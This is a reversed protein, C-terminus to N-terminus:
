GGLGLECALRTYDTKGSGLVPIVEVERCDVFRSTVRLRDGVMRILQAAPVETAGAERVVVVRGGDELVAVTRDPALMGELEDLNVRQGALKAIRSKRGTVTFFGEDDVRGLDGTALVGRNVDGLALDARETAYGLMVNPGEYIMEGDTALSLRGGPVPIGISGPKDLVRAPPLCAIRATAETQGYMVVLRRGCQHLARAFRAVTDPAMRGGAQTMTRLTPLDLRHFDIKELITYAYPVGAFSTCGHTRVGDWFGSHVISVAPLVVTAGALLHSNLVSLGYSYSIPLSQVAREDSDIALCEVIQAANADVNRASLRVLKPSGTSGSTCLLVALDEHPPMTDAPVGGGPECRGDRLVLDPRYHTILSRTLDADTDADLLMAAHGAALIALYGIVSSADRRCVCAVLAKGQGTLCAAQRRVDDALEAYTWTRRTAVEVLAPGPPPDDLWAVVASTM